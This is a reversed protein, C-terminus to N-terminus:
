TKFLKEIPDMNLWLCEQNNAHDNHQKYMQEKSTEAHYQMQLNLLKGLLYLSNPQWLELLLERSISMNQVKGLPIKEPKAPPQSDNIVLFYSNIESSLM